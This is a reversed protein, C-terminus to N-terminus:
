KDLLFFLRGNAATQPLTTGYNVEAVYIIDSLKSNEAEAEAYAADIKEFNESFVDVNYFDQGTPKELNLKNTFESM